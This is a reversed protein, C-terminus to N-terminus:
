GPVGYYVVELYATTTTGRLAKFNRLAEYGWVEWTEFVNAEYGIAATPDTGDETFIVKAGLCQMRAFYNNPTAKTTDLTHVAADDLTVRERNTIKYIM